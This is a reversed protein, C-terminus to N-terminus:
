GIWAPPRKALFASVGEKGEASSRQRAIWSATTDLLAEDLSNAAVYAILAKAESQAGPGGQAIDHLVQRVADEIQGASVVEHVLGYRAAAQASFREATLFLRRCVREGMASVVYPAITAPILGLRAESLSFIAADSAIAIDCAAVLGVGGGFAAGHVVAITPKPLTNLTYLLRALAQADAKNEEVSYSAMRRMWELDAGASFSRGSGRLVVARVSSDDRLAELKDQFAAIFADNFANHVEPRNMTLTAVGDNILFDLM